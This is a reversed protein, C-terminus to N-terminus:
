GLQTKSITIVPCVGINDSNYINYRYIIGIDMSFSM